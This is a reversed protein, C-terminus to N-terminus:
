LGRGRLRELTDPEADDEDDEGHDGIADVQIQCSGVLNGSEVCRIGVFAGELSDPGNLTIDDDYLGFFAIAGGRPRFEGLNDFRAVTSTQPDEDYLEIAVRDAAAGRVRASVSTPELEGADTAEQHFIVKGKRAGDADVVQCGM